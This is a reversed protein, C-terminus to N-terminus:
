TVLSTLPTFEHFRNTDCLRNQKLPSSSSASPSAPSSQLPPLPPPPVSSDLTMQHHSLHSSYVHFRDQEADCLRNQELPQHFNVSIQFVRSVSPSSVSTSFHKKALRLTKKELSTIELILVTNRTINVNTIHGTFKSNKKNSYQHM